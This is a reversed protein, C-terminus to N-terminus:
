MEAPRLDHEMGNAEPTWVPPMCTWGRSYLQGSLWFNEITDTPLFSPQFGGTTPSLSTKASIHQLFTVSASSTNGHAIQGPPGQLPPGRQAIERAKGRGRAGAVFDDTTRVGGRARRAHRHARGHGMRRDVDAGAEHHDDAGEEDSHR